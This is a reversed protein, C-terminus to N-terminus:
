TQDNVQLSCEPSRGQRDVQEESRKKPSLQPPLKKNQFSNLNISFRYSYHMYVCIYICIYTHIHIYVYLYGEGLNGVSSCKVVNAESTPPSPPFPLSLPLLFPSPHAISLPSPPLLLSPFPSPVLPFSFSSYSFALFPIFTGKDM